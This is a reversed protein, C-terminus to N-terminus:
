VFGDKVGISFRIVIQICRIVAHTGRVVKHRILHLTNLFLLQTKNGAIQPVL